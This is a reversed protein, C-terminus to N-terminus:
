TSRGLFEPPPLADLSRDTRRRNDDDRWAVTLHRAHRLSSFALEDASIFRSEYRSSSFARSIFITASRVSSRSISFSTICRFSQLKTTNRSGTRLVQLSQGTDIRCAQPTM